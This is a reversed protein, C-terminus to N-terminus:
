EVPFSWALGMAYTGSGHVQQVEADAIAQEIKEAMWDFFAHGRLAKTAMDIKHGFQKVIRMGSSKGGKTKGQLDVLAVRFNSGGCDLALYTGQETGTPLTHNYSPLMCLNSDQLKVKFADQLKASIGLLSEVDLSAEFQEKIEDLYHNAPAGHASAAATGNTQPLQEAVPAM